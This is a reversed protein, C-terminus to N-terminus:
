AAFPGSIEGSGREILRTPLVINKPDGKEGTMREVLIEAALTGMQVPDQAIVTLGPEVLDASEFGDFGVVAIEQQLGLSRVARVVPACLANQAVFLATPPTDSGLLGLCQREVEAPDDFGRLVISEDVAIGAADLAQRYGVYRLHSSTVSPWDGIFGIRRHGHSLLHEVGHAAGGQNDSVVSDINLFAPPRDVLVIHTGARVDASLYSHDHSAPMMILGDVRRATFTSVAAREREADEDTSAALVSIRRTRFVDEVARHLASSFPNSIDVLIVGVAAATTGARLQSAAMNHRYDLREIAEHVRQAIEASVYKEGNIVRSVTKQSVDALAAVDRMTSRQLPRASPAPTERDITM